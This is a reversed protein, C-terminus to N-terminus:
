AGHASEKPAIDPRIIKRGQLDVRDHQLDVGYKSLFDRLLVDRNATATQVNAQALQLALEAKEIQLADVEEITKEM